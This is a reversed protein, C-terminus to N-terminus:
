AISPIASCSFVCRRQDFGNCSDVLRGPSLDTATLGRVAVSPPIGNGLLLSAATRGLAPATQIGYGGQGALWFFGDARPDFGVVPARDPAFTRLGAWKSAIHNVEIDLISQMRDVAIAVDLEDAQADCPPSPTEDAPSCLLRGSEPKFYFTEDVDIAMPWDDVSMGAPVDVLCVTRRLPQLGLADLGALEAVADVWAGAADVVIDAGYTGGATVISWYGGQRYLSTVQRDVAVTGGARTVGRLFGQHLAAVDLEKAGRDYLVSKVVGKRALPHHTEFLSGDAVEVGVAQHRVEEYRAAITEEQGATGILFLDIDRWLPADSFGAPPGGFFDRGEATLARIVANGYSEVFIAASRGTTHYGTESEQELVVVRREPALFYALSAGAIGAGVVAVDFHEM